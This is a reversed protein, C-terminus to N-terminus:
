RRSFSRGCVLCIFAPGSHTAQHRRLHEKRLFSKGCHCIHRDPSPSIMDHREAWHNSGITVPQERAGCSTSSCASAVAHVAESGMPAPSSAAHTPYM